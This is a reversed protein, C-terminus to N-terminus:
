LKPFSLPILTKPQNEINICLKCLCNLATKPSSKKHWNIFTFLFAKLSRLVIAKRVM